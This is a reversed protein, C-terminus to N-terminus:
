GRRASVANSKLAIENPITVGHEIEPVGCDELSWDARAGDAKPLLVWEPEGNKELFQLVRVYLAHIHDHRLTGLQPVTSTRATTVHLM